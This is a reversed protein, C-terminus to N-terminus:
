EPRTTTQVIGVMIEDSVLEGADLVRRPRGDSRLGLRCLKEFFIALRFRRYGASRCGASQGSNGQRRRATRVDCCEFGM